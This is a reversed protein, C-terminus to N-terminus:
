ARHGDLARFWADLGDARLLGTGVLLGAFGRDLLRAAVAADEIGSASVPCRVGAAQLAPLLRLSRGVDAPGRERDRIDKNNVAVVCGDVVRGGATPLAAVEDESVVEVFPTLGLGLAAEVLKALAAGPLLTATLLVASAGLDRARRLQGANTLFDKQLVPLATAATVEALLDATGGFWRGTVVSLCPAGAEEYRAVLEGASRGQFLDEGASSRAKLEMVVPRPAGALAEVFGPM